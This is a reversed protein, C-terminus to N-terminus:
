QKKDSKKLKEKLSEVSLLVNRKVQGKGGLLPVPQGEVVIQLGGANGLTMYLTTQDEPVWYEEGQNLVRSFVVAHSSNRIELWTNELAKLVIPHAAPPEPKEEAETVAIDAGLIEEAPQEVPEPKQPATLQATLESPVPPIEDKTQPSTMAGIVILAALLAVASGATVQWGPTKQEDDEIPMSLVPRTKEIKRGAQKKLLSVMKEGDLGLYESYTRVFGFVYVRGPLREISNYELAELHEAKIRLDQEAQEFSINYHLRTRRLIEGVTSDAQFNDPFSSPAPNGARDTM